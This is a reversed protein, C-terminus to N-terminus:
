APPAALGRILTEVSAQYTVAPDPTLMLGKLELAVAGHVANWVQQAVETADPATIAGAAAALEVVRVLAGFAAAAQEVVERPPEADQERPIAREFMVAYFHPSALAFERYRRACDRLRGLPDAVRSDEMTATLRGFGLILLANVLGDKGGLRSYVGMPAIGAEAAVARVTVGGPGNRVLVSEAAAVLERQIDASPTRSRRGAAAGAKTGAKSMAPM